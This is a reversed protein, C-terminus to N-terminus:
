VEWDDEGRLSILPAEEKSDGNDCLRFREVLLGADRM